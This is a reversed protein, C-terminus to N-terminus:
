CAPSSRATTRLSKMAANKKNRHTHTRPCAETTAAGLSQLVPSWNHSVPKAEGHYTCEEWCLVQIRGWAPLHLKRGQAVLAGVAGM